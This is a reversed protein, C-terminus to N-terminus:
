LAVGSSVSLKVGFEVGGEFGLVATRESMSANALKIRISAGGSGLWVVRGGAVSPGKKSLYTTHMTMRRREGCALHIGAAGRSTRADGERVLGHIEEGVNEDVVHTFTERVADRLSACAGILESRRREPTDSLADKEEMVSSCSIQHLSDFGVLAGAALCKFDDVIEVSQLSPLPLVDEVEQTRELGPAIQAAEISPRRGLTTVRRTTPSDYSSCFRKIVLLRGALGTIPLELNVPRNTAWASKRDPV